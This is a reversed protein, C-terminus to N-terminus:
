ITGRYESVRTRVTSQGRAVRAGSTDNSRVGLEARFLDRAFELENIKRHHLLLQGDPSILVAANCIRDNSREVLGAAIYIAHEGATRSLLATHPGPIPQAETRASRHTWGLDLCEPLVIIQCGRNEQGLLPVLKLLM